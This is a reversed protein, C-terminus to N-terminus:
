DDSMSIDSIKKVIGEIEDYYKICKKQSGNNSSQDNIYNDNEFTEISEDFRSYNYHFNNYRDSSCTSSDNYIKNYDIIFIELNFNRIQYQIEDINKFQFLSYPSNTFECIEEILNDLDQYFKSGNLNNNHVLLYM